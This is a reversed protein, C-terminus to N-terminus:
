WLWASSCFQSGKCIIDSVIKVTFTFPGISLLFVVSSCGCIGWPWPSFFWFGVCALWQPSVMQSGFGTLFFGGLLLEFAAQGRYSWRTTVTRRWEDPLRKWRRYNAIMNENCSEECDVCRISLSSIELCSDGYILSGVSSITSFVFGKKEEGIKAAYKGQIKLERLHSDFGLHLNAQFHAFVQM